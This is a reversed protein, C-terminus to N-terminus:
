KNAYMRIFDLFSARKLFDFDPEPEDDNWKHSFELSFYGCKARDVEIFNQNYPVPPIILFVWPSGDETEIIMDDAILIAEEQLVGFDPDDSATYEVIVKRVM